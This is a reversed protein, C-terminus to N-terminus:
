PESGAETREPHAYRVRFGRPAEPPSSLITKGEEEDESREWTKTAEGVESTEIAVSQRQMEVIQAYKVAVQDRLASSRMREQVCQQLIEKAIVLLMVQAGLGACVLIIALESM